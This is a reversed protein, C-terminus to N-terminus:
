RHPKRRFLTYLEGEREVRYDAALLDKLAQFEEFSTLADPLAPTAPGERFLAFYAPANTELERLAIARPDFAPVKVSLYSTCLFRSAARREAHLYVVPANGWIFITDDPRTHRKIYDGLERMPADPVHGNIVQWAFVTRQRFKEAPVVLSLAVFLLILGHRWGRQTRFDAAVQYLASAFLVAIPAFLSLYHYPLFSGHLFISALGV